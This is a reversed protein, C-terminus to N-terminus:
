ARHHACFFLEKTIYMTWIFQRWTELMLQSILAKNLCIKRKHTSFIFLGIFLKGCDFLVASVNISLFCFIHCIHKVLCPSQAVYDSHLWQLTVARQSDSARSVVIVDIWSNVSLMCLKPLTWAGTQGSRAEKDDVLLNFSWATVWISCQVWICLLYM